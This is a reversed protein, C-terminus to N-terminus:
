SLQNYIKNATGPHGYISTKSCMGLAINRLVTTRLPHPRPSRVLLLLRFYPIQAGLTSPQPVLSLPKKEPHCGRTQNRGGLIQM